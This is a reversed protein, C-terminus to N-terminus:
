ETSLPRCTLWQAVFLGLAAGALDAVWDLVEADRLFLPQTLEDLAGYAGLVALLGLWSQFAPRYRGGFAASFGPRSDAKQCRPAQSEAQSDIESKDSPRSLSACEPGYPGASATRPSAPRHGLAPHSALSDSPSKRSHRVSSGVAAGLLLGLVLYGAFHWLKDRHPWTPQPEPPPPLHTVCAAVLWYIPLLWRAARQLLPTKPSSVTMRPAVVGHRAQQAVLWQLKKEAPLRCAALLPAFHSPLASHPAPFRLPCCTRTRFLQRLARARPRPACLM